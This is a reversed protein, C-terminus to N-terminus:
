KTKNKSWYERNVKRRKEQKCTHCFQENKSKKTFLKGCNACAAVQEGCYRQYYLILNDYTEVLFETPSEESVYKLLFGGYRTADLYGKSYLTHIFETREKKNAEVRAVSFIDGLTENVYFMGVLRAKKRPKILTNNYKLVKSYVLFTFLIKELEYNGVEKIKALEAKSIPVPISTRIRRKKAERIAMSIKWGQTTENWSHDVKKCLSRLIKKIERTNLNERYYYKALIVLDKLKIYKKGFTRNKLMAEAYSLEDLILV